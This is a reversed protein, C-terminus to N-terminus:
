SYRWADAIHRPLRRPTVLILDFRMRNEALAPRRQIFAAAARGIRRRQRSSVSEIAAGASPRAKVEVFAITGGRRAILDIEGVPTKFRRALVRYGKFRLLWASMFEARRGAADRRRRDSKTVM